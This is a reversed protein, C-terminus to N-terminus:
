GFPDAGLGADSVDGGDSEILGLSAFLDFFFQSFSSRGDPDMTPARAFAPTAAMSGAVIVVVCFTRISALKM